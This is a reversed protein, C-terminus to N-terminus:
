IFIYLILKNFITFKFLSCAPKACRRVIFAFITPEIGVWPVKQELLSYFYLLSNSRAINSLYNVSHRLVIKERTHLQISYIFFAYLLLCIFFFIFDSIVYVHIYINVYLCLIYQVTFQIVNCLLSARGSEGRRLLWRM